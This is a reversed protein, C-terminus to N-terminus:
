MGQRAGSWTVKRLKSLYAHCREQGHNGNCASQGHAEQRGGCNCTSISSPSLSTLVHSTAQEQSSVCALLM